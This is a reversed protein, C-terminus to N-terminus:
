AGYALLYFQGTGTVLYLYTFKITYIEVQHRRLLQKVSEVDSGNVPFSNAQEEAKQLWGQFTFSLMQTLSDM